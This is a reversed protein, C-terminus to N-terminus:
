TEIFVEGDEVAVAYAELSDGFCPGHVCAGDEIRFVAWHTACLIYQAEDDLFKGPAHEMMDGEHPCRNRYVWVQEGRRVLVLPLRYPGDPISLSSSNGDPIDALACLRTRAM